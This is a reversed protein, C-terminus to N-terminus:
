RVPRAVAHAVSQHISFLREGLVHWDYRRAALERGASALRQWLEPSEGIVGIAQAMEAATDAILIDTGPRVELGEAGLTTSIVPVGAAFAELIKLRTGSGVRLPVVVALSERYYPRVDGVTFQGAVGAGTWLAASFHCTPPDVLVIPM